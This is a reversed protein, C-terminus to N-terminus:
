APVRTTWIGELGREAIPESFIVPDLLDLGFRQTTGCNILAGASDASTLQRHRVVFVTCLLVGRAARFTPTQQIRWPTLYPAALDFWCRDWKQAAHIVIRQGALSAFRSHLRTEIPKWGLAVWSAWPQWLSITKLTVM